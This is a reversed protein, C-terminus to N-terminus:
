HPQRCQGVAPAPDRWHQRQCFTVLMIWGTAFSRESRAGEDQHAIRATQLLGDRPMHALCYSVTYKREHHGLLRAERRLLQCLRGHSTPVAPPPRDAQAIPVIASLVACGVIAAKGVKAATPPTLATRM